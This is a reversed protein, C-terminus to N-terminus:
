VPYPSCLVTIERICSSEWRLYRGYFCMQWPFIYKYLDLIIEGYFDALYIKVIVKM